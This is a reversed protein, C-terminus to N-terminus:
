SHSYNRRAPRSKTHAKKITYRVTYAKEVMYTILITIGFCYLVMMLWYPVSYSTGPVVGVLFFSLLLNLVKGNIIAILVLSGAIGIIVRNKM